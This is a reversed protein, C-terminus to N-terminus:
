LLTKDTGNCQKYETFYKDMNNFSTKNKLIDIELKNETAFIGVPRMSEM